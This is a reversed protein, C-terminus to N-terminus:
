LFEHFVNAQGINEMFDYNDLSDGSTANPFTIWCTVVTPQFNNSLLGGWGKEVFEQHQLIEPELGVDELVMM